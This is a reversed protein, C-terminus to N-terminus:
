RGRVTAQKFLEQKVYRPSPIILQDGENLDTPLIEMDNAAAIVWWLRPDQYFRQSLLDIRDSRLVQYQLDDPQAVITPLDLVDWFEVDDVVILEGFRLRSFRRVKVAM